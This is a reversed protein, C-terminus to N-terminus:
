LLSANLRRPKVPPFVARKLRQVLPLVLCTESIITRSAPLPSSRVLYIYLTKSPRLFHFHYHYYSSFLFLLLCSSSSFLSLFLFLDIINAVLSLHPLEDSIVCESVNQVVRFACLIETREWLFFFIKLRVRDIGGLECAWM